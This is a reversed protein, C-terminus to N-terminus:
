RKEVLCHVRNFAMYCQQEMNDKFKTKKLFIKIEKIKKTALTIESQLDLRMATIQYLILVNVSVCVCLYATVHLHYM